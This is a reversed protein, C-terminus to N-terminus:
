ASLDPNRRQERADALRSRTKELWARQTELHDRQATLDAENQEPATGGAIDRRM